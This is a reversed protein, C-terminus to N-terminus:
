PPSEGAPSLIPIPGPLIENIGSKDREWRGKVRKLTTATHWEFLDSVRKRTGGVDAEVWEVFSAVWFFGTAHPDAPTFPDLTPPNQLIPGPVDIVYIHGDDGKLDEDSDTIDDDTGARVHAVLKWASGVKKWTAREITRKFDFAVGHANGAIDGRLEMGNRGDPRAPGLDVPCASCGNDASSSQTNKFGAEDLRVWLKQGPVSAHRHAFRDSLITLIERRTAAAPVLEALRSQMRRERPHKPITLAAHLAEAAPHDLRGLMIRLLEGRVARHLTQFDAAVKDKGTPEFLRSVLTSTDPESLSGLESRLARRRERLRKDDPDNTRFRLHKEIAEIDRLLRRQGTGAPVRPGDVFSQMARNGALQQLRLFLGVPGDRVDQTASRPQAVASDRNADLSTRHREPVGGISRGLSQSRARGRLAPTLSARGELLLLTPEALVRERSATAAEAIRALCCEVATDGADKNM